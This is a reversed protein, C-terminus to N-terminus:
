QLSSFIKYGALAFYKHFSKFFSNGHFCVVSDLLYDFGIYLDEVDPATLVSYAKITEEFKGDGFDGLAGVHLLPRVCQFPTNISQGTFPYAFVGLFIQRAFGSELCKFFLTGEASKPSFGM